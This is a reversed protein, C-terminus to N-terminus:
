PNYCDHRAEHWRPMPTAVSSAQRGILYADFTPSGGIAQGFVTWARSSASTSITGLFVWSWTGPFGILYGGFVLTEAPLSCGSGSCGEGANEVDIAINEIGPLVACKPSLSLRLWQRAIQKGSPAHVCSTNFQPGLASPCSYCSEFQGPVYGLAFGPVGSVVNGPNAVFCSKTVSDARVEGSAFVLGAVLLLRHM